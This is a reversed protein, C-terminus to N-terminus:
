SNLIEDVVSDVKKEHDRYEDSQEVVNKEYARDLSRDSAFWRFWVFYLGAKLVKFIAKTFYFCGGGILLLAVAVFLVTM